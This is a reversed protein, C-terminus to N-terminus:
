NPCRVVKLCSTRVPVVWRGFAPFGPPAYTSSLVGLVRGEKDLLAGGSAQLGPDTDILLSQPSSDILRVKLAAAGLRGPATGVAWV